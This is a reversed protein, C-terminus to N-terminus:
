PRLSAHRPPQPRPGCPEFCGAIMYIFGSIGVAAVLVVIAFSGVITTAISGSARGFGGLVMGAVVVAFLLVGVIVAVSAIGQVTSKGHVDRLGGGCLFLIMGVGGLLGLLVLGGGVLSTDHRVERDVGV